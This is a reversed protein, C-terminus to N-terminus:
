LPIKSDAVLIWITYGYFFTYVFSVTDWRLGDMKIHVHCPVGSTAPGIFTSYSVKQGSLSRSLAVFQLPIKSKGNEYITPQNDLRFM